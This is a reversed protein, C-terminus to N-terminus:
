KMAAAMIIALGILACGMLIGLSINQDEEIEKRISFPTLKEMALISFGFLLLGVLFYAVTPVLQWLEKRVEVPIGSDKADAALGMSPAAVLMTLIALCTILRM